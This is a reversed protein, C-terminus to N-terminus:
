IIRSLVDRGFDDTGLWHAASSGALWASADQALPDYPSLLPAFIAVLVILVALVGGVSATRNRLFATWMRRRQSIGVFVETGDM